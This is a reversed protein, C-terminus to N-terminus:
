QWYACYQNTKFPLPEGRISFKLYILDLASKKHTTITLMLVVTETSRCNFVCIFDHYIIALCHIIGLLSWHFGKVNKQFSIQSDIKNATALLFSVIPTM